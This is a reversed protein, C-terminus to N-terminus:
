SGVLGRMDEEDLWQWERTQVRAAGKVDMIESECMGLVPAPQADFLVRRHCADADTSRGM